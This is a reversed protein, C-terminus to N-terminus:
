DIGVVKYTNAIEVNISPTGVVIEMSKSGYIPSDKTTLPKVFNLGEYGAQLLPVLRNPEYVYYNTYSNQNDQDQRSEWIM